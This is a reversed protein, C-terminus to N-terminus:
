KGTRRSTSILLTKLFMSPANVLLSTVMLAAPFQLTPLFPTKRGKGILHSVLCFISKKQNRPIYLIHAKRYSPQTKFLDLGKRKPYNASIVIKVAQNQRPRNQSNQNKAGKENSKSPPFKVLKTTLFPSETRNM